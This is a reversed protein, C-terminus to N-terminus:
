FSSSIAVFYALAGTDNLFQQKAIGVQYKRLIAPSICRVNYLYKLVSAADNRRQTNTSGVTIHEHINGPDAETHAFLDAHLQGYERQDPLVYEVARQTIEYKGRSQGDASASLSIVPSPKVQTRKSVPANMKAQLLEFSGSEACRFCHYSGNTHVMLKWCNDPKDKNRKNCLHCEKVEIQGDPRVRYEQNLTEVFQVVPASPASPSSIEVPPTGVTTEFSRSIRAAQAAPVAMHALAPFSRWLRRAVQGIRLRGALLMASQLSPNDALFLLWSV